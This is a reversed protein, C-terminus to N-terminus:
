IGTLRHNLRETDQTFHSSEYIIIFYVEDLSAQKSIIRQGAFLHLLKTAIVDPFRRHNIFM